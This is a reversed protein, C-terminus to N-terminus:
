YSPFLNEQLAEECSFHVFLTCFASYCFHLKGLAFVRHIEVFSVFFRSQKLCSPFLNEQLAEGCRFHGFLTYISFVLFAVEGTCLSSSIVLNILFGVSNLLLPSIRLESGYVFRGFLMCFVSYCFHLKGLAFVRHIEVFSVFFRSQKLCSPFLNEQLAEVCRFHGFLTYISFLLFARHSFCAPFSSM